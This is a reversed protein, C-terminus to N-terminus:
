ILMIQKGKGEGEKGAYLCAGYTAFMILSASIEKLPKHLNPSRLSFIMKKMM